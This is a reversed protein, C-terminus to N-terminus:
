GQKPPQQQQQQQPQQQQQQQPRQQQQQQQQQPHAAQKDTQQTQQVRKYLSTYKEFTDPDMIVPTGLVPNLVRTHGPQAPAVNAGTM